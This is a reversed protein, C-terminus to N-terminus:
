LPKRKVTGTSEPARYGSHGFWGRIDEAGVARLADGMADILGDITRAGAARLWEKLKGFLREIPNRDPSYAPLYRVAAGAAGILREVEATKHCSRNDM